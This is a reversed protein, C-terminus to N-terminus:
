LSLIFAKFAAFTRDGTYDTTQGDVTIQITPFGKVGAATAAAKDAECDVAAITIAKGSIVQGDLAQKLQTWEPKVSKCHPCWETYYLTATVSKSAGGVAGAMGEKRLKPLVNKYLWFGILAIVAVVIAKQVTPLRHFCSLTKKISDM